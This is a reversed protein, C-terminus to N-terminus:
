SFQYIENQKDKEHRKNYGNKNEGEREKEREAQGTKGRRAFIFDGFGGYM